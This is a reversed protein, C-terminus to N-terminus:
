RKASPIFQQPFSSNGQCCHAKFGTYAHGSATCLQQDGQQTHLGQSPEWSSGRHPSCRQSTHSPGPGAPAPSLPSAQLHQTKPLKTKLSTSLGREGQGFHPQLSNTEAPEAHSRPLPDGVLNQDTNQRQLRRNCIPQQANHKKGQHLQTTCIPHAAYQM